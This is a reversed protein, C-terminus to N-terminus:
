ECKDGGSTDQSPVAEVVEVEAVTIASTTTTTVTAEEQRAQQLPEEAEATARATIIAM